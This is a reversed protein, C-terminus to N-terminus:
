PAEPTPLKHLRRVEHCIIKTVALASKGFGGDATFGEAAELAARVEASMEPKVKGYHKKVADEFKREEEATFDRSPEPAPQSALAADAIVAKIREHSVQDHLDWRGGRSVALAEAERLAALLKANRDLLQALADCRKDQKDLLAKEAEALKRKLEANEAQLTEPTM